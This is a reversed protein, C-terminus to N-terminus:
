MFDSVTDEVLSQFQKSERAMILLRQFEFNTSFLEEVAKEGYSGSLAKVLNKRLVGEISALLFPKGIAAFYNALKLVHLWQDDIQKSLMIPEFHRRLLIEYFPNRLMASIDQPNERFLFTVHSTAKVWANEVLSGLYGPQIEPGHWRVVSEILHGMKVEYEYKYGLGYILRVGAEEMDLTDGHRSAFERMEEFFFRVQERDRANMRIIFFRKVFAWTEDGISLLVEDSKDLGYFINKFTFPHHQSSSSRQFLRMPNKLAGTERIQGILKPDVKDISIGMKKALEDLQDGGKTKSAKQILQSLNSVSRGLAQSSTSYFFLLGGTLSIQLFLKFFGGKFNM